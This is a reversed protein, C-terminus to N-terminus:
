ASVENALNILFTTGDPSSDFSILGDHDDIIKKVMALGLGGKSSKKSSVYPEFINNKRLQSIRKSSSIKSDLVEYPPNAIIIDFGKKLYFVEAFFLEWCFFNRKQNHSIYSDL